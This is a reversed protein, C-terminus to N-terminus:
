FKIPTMQAQAAPFATAFLLTATTKLLASKLFARTKM